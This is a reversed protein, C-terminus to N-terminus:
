KDRRKGAKFRHIDLVETLFGQAQHLAAPICEQDTQCLQDVPRALLEVLRLAQGYQRVQISMASNRETKMTGGHTERRTM